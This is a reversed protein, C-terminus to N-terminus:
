PNTAPPLPARPPLPDELTDWRFEDTLLVPDRFTHNSRPQRPELRSTASVRGVVQLPASSQIIASDLWRIHRYLTTNSCIGVPQENNCYLWLKGLTGTFYTSPHFFLDLPEDVYQPVVPPDDDPFLFEMDRLTLVVRYHRPRTPGLRPAIRYEEAECDDCALLEIHSAMTIDWVRISWARDPVDQETRNGSGHRFQDPRIAYCREDALCNPDPQDNIRIQLNDLFWQKSFTAQPQLYQFTVYAADPTGNRVEFEM